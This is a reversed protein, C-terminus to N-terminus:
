EPTGSSLVKSWPVPQRGGEVENTDVRKLTMTSEVPLCNIGFTMTLGIDCGLTRFEGVVGDDYSSPSGYPYSVWRPTFGHGIAGHLAAVNKRLNDRRAAAVESALHTHWHSHLGITHGADCLAKVMDPTMYHTPVFAEDGGLHARFVDGMVGARQEQPIVANIYFKVRAVAPEDYRYQVMAKDMPVSSLPAAIGRRLAAWEFDAALTEYSFAAALLHAMHVPLLKGSEWPGTNISFVGRIDLEALVPAVHDYHDRLGDDFTALCSREPLSATGLLGQRVKAPDPFAFRRKLSLLQQRFDNVTRFYLGPFRSDKKERVHHFAVILLLTRDQDQSRKKFPAM